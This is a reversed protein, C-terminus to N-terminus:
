VGFVAKTIAAGIRDKTDVSLDNARSRAQKVARLVAEARDYLEAQLQDQLAIRGFATSRVVPWAAQIRSRNHVLRYGAGVLLVVAAARGALRLTLAPAPVARLLWEVSEAITAYFVPAIFAIHIFDPFYFISLMSFLSLVLLLALRLASRADRRRWALIGLRVAVVPLVVPLFKLLRPFTYTGQTYSMINVDGWPCHTSGRYDFLPFIVLARWVPQFGAHLIIAVTVPVVILLAGAVLCALRATLPASPERPQLRRALLADVIMWVFVGAAMIAGRQQQVSILLGLAVGPLLAARARDRPLDICTLLVVVSFLTSLWHQSVVPWASQSIVLYALPAAASLARRIELKRCAAYLLVGTIGHMVAQATRATAFDTGFVGFLLAMLYLYGPTIMEFVDRYLVEGDLIRKSEYLHIAEDSPGLNPPLSALYLVTVGFLVLAVLWDRRPVRFAKWVM